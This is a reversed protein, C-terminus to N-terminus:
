TERSAESPEAADAPELFLAVTLDDARRQLEAYRDFRKRWAEDLDLWGAEVMLSVERSDFLPAADVPGPLQDGLAPLRGATLAADGRENLPVGESALYAAIADKVDNFEIREAPTLGDHFAVRQAGPRPRRADDRYVVTLVQDVEVDGERAAGLQRPPILGPGAVFDVGQEQLAALVASGYSDGFTAEGEVRVTGDIDADALQRQLDRAVPIASPPAATGQRNTPLNAVAFAAVVVTCAVAVRTVALPRVAFRRVVTVLVAFWVFAALPWLFRFQHPAVGFSGIPARGATLVAAALAVAATVLLRVGDRDDRRRADWLCAGLLGATAVLAIVAVPTSSPSWGSSSGSAEIADRFSDRFWWPPLSTVSAVLRTGLGFGIAEGSDSASEWLRALNGKGDATFQEILPPLWSLVLAGAAALGSVVVQRRLDPWREPDDRRHRRMELVLGLVAWGALAPVLLVYGLQTQVVLSGAVIALPLAVLDGCTASWVVVLFFLFPLLISHPGWPEYLMESGMSWTLVTTVATAVTALLAGGRRYAFAAIGVIAACNVLAVGLAVGGGGGVLRAPVALLEFLLPGPHNVDIGADISASSWTGLLPQHEVTFVDHIRIAYLANDGVPVWGSRAARVAAVVVPVLAAAVAVALLRDVLRERADSSGHM